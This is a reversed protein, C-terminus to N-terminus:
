NIDAIRDKLMKQLISKYLDPRISKHLEIIKTSLRFPPDQCHGTIIEILMDESTDAYYAIGMLTYEKTAIIDNILCRIISAELMFTRLHHYDKTFFNILETHLLNTIEAALLIQEEKSFQTPNIGIYQYCFGLSSM